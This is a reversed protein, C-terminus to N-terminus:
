RGGWRWRWPQGDSKLVIVVLLALTALGLGVPTAWRPAGEATALPPIGIMAVLYLAMVIWGAAGKPGVGIGYTKSGFWPQGM